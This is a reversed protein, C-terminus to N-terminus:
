QQPFVRKVDKSVRLKLDSDTVAPNMKVNTYTALKYDGAALYFKQEVPYVESEPIWLELKKLSKRVEQSKPVLELRTAERGGVTDAGLVKMTYAAALEKGTTGFGILLFQDLLERHRGIDYEEVTQMKPHYIELKSDHLAVTKPDPEKFEVLMRMDHKSRKLLLSGTDVIDENIVATHTVWRVDASIAKFSAGASDMRALLNELSDPATSFALGTSALGLLIAARIQM